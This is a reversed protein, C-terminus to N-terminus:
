CHIYAPFIYINRKLVGFSDEADMWWSKHFPRTYLLAALLIDQIHLYHQAHQIVRLVGCADEPDPIQLFCAKYASRVYYKLPAFCPSVM